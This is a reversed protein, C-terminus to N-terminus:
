RDRGGEAAAAKTSVRDWLRRMTGASSASPGSWCPNCVYRVVPPLSDSLDALIQRRWPLAGRMLADSQLTKYHARAIAGRQTELAGAPSSPAGRDAQAVLRERRPMARGSKGRPCKIDLNSGKRTLEEVSRIPGVM